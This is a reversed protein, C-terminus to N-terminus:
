STRVDHVCDNLFTYLMFRVFGHTATHVSVGALCICGTTGTAFLAGSQPTTTSLLHYQAISFCSLTGPLGAMSGLFLKALACPAAPAGERARATAVNVGDLAIQFMRPNWRFVIRHTHDPQFRITRASMHPQPPGDGLGFSAQANEFINELMCYAHTRSRLDCWDRVGIYIGVTNPPLIIDFVANGMLPGTSQFGTGTMNPVVAPGPGGLMATASWDLLMNHPFVTFMTLQRVNITVVHASMYAEMMWRLKMPLQFEETNMTVLKGQWHRRDRVARLMTKSASALMKLYDFSFYFGPLEALLEDLVAGGEYEEVKCRM